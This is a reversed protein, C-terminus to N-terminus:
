IDATALNPVDERRQKKRESQEKVESLGSDGEDLAVDEVRMFEYEMKVSFPFALSNRSKPQEIKMVGLEKAEKNAVWIWSNSSHESIARAYRIKADDGVQCLLVNVRNEVEANIKGYRAVAGLARWMDDGDVGKLLSIYDIIVVDCQYASIAAMIEEITMDEQPKFITYRGGAEKVKKEWRRQRKYVLEREGTALRQLLIKTLNTKTVNAMTRATMELKSMELPVMLVKYGRTAMKIGMANALTSKGGGSNAGITVLSGRAFGGSVTDFAKLGTPIVDETRDGYLLHEVTDKSNNNRGFHLFSEATSKKSRIVNFATAAEQMLGDLDLSSGQMKSNIHAALNYMGRRQRYKNLIRAAKEADAISHVVATSSRLHTRAEESLDPDEILLRYSPSEGEEQMHKKIAKFVEASEESYFYSSDVSSLLAGAIKKNRSCMGRLVNLEAKPSVIKLM